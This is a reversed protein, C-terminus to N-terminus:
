NKKDHAGNIIVSFDNYSTTFTFQKSNNYASKRLKDYEKKNKLLDVIAAAMARPNESSLKGTEDHIVSDNLGSVNYAIAPTGQSNAETVILGWGEKISTALLLTAEQMLQKKQKLTVSGIINIADKHRSFEIYKQIKKAYPDSNNGAVQMILDPIKDRAFEFAKIADLPRKMPRLAGFFLITTSSKKVDLYKIPQLDMGVRFVKIKKSNFGYKTLETKTSESETVIIKYRNKLLYLYLPELLYGILSLPFIMQYFWVKRALQYTLLIHTLNKERIAIPTFFPLTNMEDIVTDISNKLKKRFYLHAKIYVSYRGGIRHIHVGEVIEESLSHGYRATILHVTHGDQALRVRLNHSVVEAGGAQPHSIDKWSFWVIHM